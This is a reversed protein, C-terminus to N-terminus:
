CSTQNPPQIVFGAYSLTGGSRNVDPSKSDYLGVAAISHLNEDAFLINGLTYVYVAGHQTNFKSPRVHKRYVKKMRRVTSCPGVGKLTRDKKNWSTIVVAKEGGDIPGDFYVDIKRAPFVIRTWGDPQQFGPENLDGGKAVEVRYPNGFLQEYATAALGLKAGALSSAKLTPAAAQSGAVALGGAAVLTVAITAKFL